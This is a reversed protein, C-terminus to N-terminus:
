NVFVIAERVTKSSRGTIEARQRELVALGERMDRQETQLKLEQDTIAKRSEFQYTTLTKLQTADLVGKTMEVTATPATFNALKDLYVRQEGLLQQQKQNANLDDNMKRIQADLKRVEERVDQSVARERYRVSRVEIGDTSEAFLSAPLIRHPLDSVVVEGLGITAPVEVGRTVLAQGLYVTVSDIKSKAPALENKAKAVMDLSRARDAESMPQGSPPGAQAFAAKWGVTGLVAVALLAAVTMRTM